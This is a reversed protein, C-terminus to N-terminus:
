LDLRRAFHPSLAALKEEFTTTEPEGNLPWGPMGELRRFIEQAQEYSIGNMVVDVDGAKVVVQQYSQGDGTVLDLTEPNNQRIKVNMMQQEYRKQAEVTHRTLADSAEQIEQEHQRVAAVMGPFAKIAATLVHLLSM